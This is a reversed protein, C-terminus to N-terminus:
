SGSFRKSKSSPVISPASSSCCGSGRVTKVFPQCSDRIEVFAESASFCTPAVRLMASLEEGVQSSPDLQPENMLVAICNLFM